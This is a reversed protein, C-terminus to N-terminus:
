DRICIQDLAPFFLGFRREDDGFVLMGKGPEIVLRVCETGETVDDDIIPIDFSAFPGEGAPIVVEPLELDDNSGVSPTRTDRRFTLTLAAPLAPKGEPPNPGRWELRPTFRISGGERYNPGGTRDLNVVIGDNDRIYTNVSIPLGEVPATNSTAEAVHVVFIEDPEIVTDDYVEITLSAKTEGAKITVTAGASFPVGRYDLGDLAPAVGHFYNRGRFTGYINDFYTTQTTWYHLVLDTDLAGITDDLLRAEFTISKEAGTSSGFLGVRQLPRDNITGIGLEGLSAINLTETPEVGLIEKAFEKTYVDRGASNRHTRVRFEADLLPFTFWVPRSVFTYDGPPVARGAPHGSWRSANRVRYDTITSPATFTDDFALIATPLESRHSLKLGFVLDEGEDATANSIWLTPRPDNDIITVTAGTAADAGADSLRANLRFAESAGIGEDTFDNCTRVTVTASTDGAAFTVTGAAHEFDGHTDAPVASCAVRTPIAARTTGGAAGATVYVAVLPRTSAEDLALTFTVTGGETVTTPAATVSLTPADDNDNITGRARRDGLLAPADATFPLLEVWFYETDYEDDDDDLTTVTVTVETTGAPITVEFDAALVTFDTGPTAARSGSHAATAVRVKVEETSAASLRVAFSAGNGEEVAAADAVSLVPLTENLITGVAAPDAALRGPSASTLRLRFREDPEDDDDSLTEVQVTAETQGAPVTVEGATVAVYDDGATAADTADEETLDETAYGVTVPRSLPESLRVVFGVPAGESASGGTVSVTTDDDLITGIGISDGRPAGTAGTLRVQFREDGEHVTDQESDVAVNVSTEGAKITAEGATVAVFDTGATARGAGAQLAQTQWTVTVDELLPANLAVEFQLTEGESASTDAVGVTVDNDLVRVEASADDLKLGDPSRLVLKFSEAEEAVADDVTPVAVIMETVGALGGEQAFTLRRSRAIFDGPAAATGAETLVSVRTPRGSPASLRVVFTAVDGETIDGPGEVSVMPEPDNDQITVIERLIAEDPTVGTPRDGHQRAYRFGVYETNEDLEDDVTPIPFTASTAGAPITLSVFERRGTFDVDFTANTFRSNYPFPIVMMVVDTLSPRDLSLVVNATEGETVTVPEVTLRPVTDADLITGTATGDEITAGRASSLAVELLEYGETETDEITTVEVTRETTGRPFTLTGGASTYDDPATATGDRTAWAVTVTGAAARGLTVTFTLDEGEEVPEADAISLGTDDDRITGTGAAVNITANTAASLRLQFTEDSEVTTDETTAVTITRQEVGPAFDLRRVYHTYDSGATATGAVTEARVSVIRDSPASLSVTFTITDGEPAEGGTVSLKPLDDNDIITALGPVGDGYTGFPPDFAVVVHEDPEDLDDDVTPVKFTISTQGAPITFASNAAPLTYDVGPSALPELTQRGGVTVSTGGLGRLTPTTAESRPKDLTLTFTLDEGETATNGTLTLLRPSGDLITGTAARDAIRANTPSSLVIQFREDDEALSDARSAVTIVRVRAGPEFTLTGNAATYDYDDGSSTAAGEGSLDRTTWDVTVEETPSANLTVLFRLPDGELASADGINIEVDDDTITVEASSPDSTAGAVNGLGLSFTEDAEGDSDDLTVVTISLTRSTAGPPFRVFRVASRYDAGATATGDVTAARASVPRGSAASLTVTFDAKEGETVTAADATVGLTPPDDNDRIRGIGTRDRITAPEYRPPVSFRVRFRETTLPGGEYLEDDITAM